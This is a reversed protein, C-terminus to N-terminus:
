ANTDGGFGNRSVLDLVASATIEPFEAHRYDGPDSDGHGRLDMVAIRHGARDPAVSLAEFSSRLEGGGPTALVLPGDELGVISHAIPEGPHPLFQTAGLPHPPHLSNPM